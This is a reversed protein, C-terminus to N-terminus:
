GRGNGKARHHDEKAHARRTSHLTNGRRNTVASRGESLDQIALKKLWVRQTMSSLQINFKIHQGSRPDVVSSTLGLFKKGSLEWSIASYRIAFHFFAPDM